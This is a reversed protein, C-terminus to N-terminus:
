RTEKKVTAKPSGGKRGEETEKTASYQAHDCCTQFGLFWWKPEGEPSQSLQFVQPLRRLLSELYYGNSNPNFTQMYQNMEAIAAGLPHVTLFTALVTVIAVEDETLGLGSPESGGGVVTRMQAYAAAAAALSNSEGGGDSLLKKLDSLDVGDVM